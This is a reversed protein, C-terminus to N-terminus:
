VPTGHLEDDDLPPSWRGARANKIREVAGALITAGRSRGAGDQPAHPTSKLGELGEWVRSMAAQWAPQPQGPEAAEKYYSSYYTPKRAVGNLVVGEVNISAARFQTKMQIAAEYPSQGIRVVVLVGDATAALVLADAVFSPPGDLIIVDAVQKLAVLIKRLNSTDLLSSAKLPTSGAPLILLQGKPQPILYDAPEGGEILLDSLGKRDSFWPQPRHSDGDILIVRKQAMAVTLALNQAVTSKGEGVSPGTVLLTKFTTGLGALELNTKLTRFSNAIASHPQDTVFSAANADQPM